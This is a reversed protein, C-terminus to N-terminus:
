DIYRANPIHRSHTNECKGTPTIVVSYWLISSSRCLFPRRRRRSYSRSFSCCLLLKERQGFVKEEKIM